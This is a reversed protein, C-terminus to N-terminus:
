QRERKSFRLYKLHKILTKLSYFCIFALYLYKVFFHAFQSFNYIYYYNFVAKDPFRQQNSSYFPMKQIRSIFEPSGKLYFHM